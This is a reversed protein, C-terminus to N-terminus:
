VPAAAAAFGVRVDARVALPATFAADDFPAPAAAFLAAPADFFLASLRASFPADAGTGAGRAAAVFRAFADDAVAARAFAVLPL